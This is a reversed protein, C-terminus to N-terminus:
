KILCYFFQFREQVAAYVYKLNLCIQMCLEVSMKGGASANDSLYGQWRWIKDIMHHLLLLCHHATAKTVHHRRCHIWHIHSPLYHAGGSGGISTLHRHHHVQAKIPFHQSLTHRSARDVIMRRHHVIQLIAHAILLNMCHAASFLSGLGM